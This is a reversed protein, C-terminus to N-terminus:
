RTERRLRHAMVRMIHLAFFPTEQVLFIFRWENIPVLKCDTAAQAIASRQGQDVLALEGLVGGPEIREVVRGEFIVDVKGDIVIYMVKGPDGQSFIIQGAAYIEVNQDDQFLRLLDM